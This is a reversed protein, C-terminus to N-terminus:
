CLARRPKGGRRSHFSSSKSTSASPAMIPPMMFTVATRCSAAAPTAMVSISQGMSCGLGGFGGGGLGGFGGGGGGGEYRTCRRVAVRRRALGYGGSPRGAAVV